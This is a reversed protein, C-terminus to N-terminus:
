YNNKPFRRQFWDWDASDSYGIIESDKILKEHLIKNQNLNITVLSHKLTDIRLQLVSDRDNRKEIEIDIENLENMIRKEITDFHKLLRDEKSTDINVNVITLIIVVVLVIIPIVFEKIKM